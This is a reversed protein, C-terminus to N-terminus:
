QSTIGKFLVNNRRSFSLLLAAHNGQEPDSAVHLFRIHESKLHKTTVLEKLHGSPCSGIQIITCKVGRVSGQSWDQAAIFSHVHFCIIILM